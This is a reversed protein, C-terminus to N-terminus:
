PLGGANLDPLQMKRHLMDSNVAFNVHVPPLVPNRLAFSPLLNHL